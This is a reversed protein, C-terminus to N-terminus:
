GRCMKERKNWGVCAQLPSEGPYEGRISQVTASTAATPQQMAYRQFSCIMVGMSRAKMLVYAPLKLLATRTSLRTKLRSPPLGDM